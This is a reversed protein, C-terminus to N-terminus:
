KTQSSLIYLSRHKYDLVWKKGQLFDANIRPYEAGKENPKIFDVKFSYNDIEVPVDECLGVEKYSLSEAINARPIKILSMPTLKSTSLLENRRSGTDFLIRTNKGGIKGKFYIENLGADAYNKWSITTVVNDPISKLCQLKNEKLDFCWLDRKLIDGGIIFKPAFQQLKGALDVICCLVNSYVVEGFSISDLYVYSSNISKGSTNDISKKGQEDKIRCSDAAFTSDIFCVSCDTDIMGSVKQAVGANSITVDTLMWHNKIMIPSQSKADATLLLLFINLLIITRTLVNEKMAPEIVLSFPADYFVGNIM